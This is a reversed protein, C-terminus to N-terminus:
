FTWAWKVFRVAFFAISFLIFLGFVLGSLLMLFNAVEEGTSRAM